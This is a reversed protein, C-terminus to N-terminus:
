WKFTMKRHDDYGVCNQLFLPQRYEAKIEDM